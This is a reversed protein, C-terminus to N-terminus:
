LINMGSRLTLRDGNKNLHATKKKPSAVADSTGFCLISLNKFNPSTKAVSEHETFSQWDLM